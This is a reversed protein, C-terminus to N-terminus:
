AQEVSRACRFGTHGTSSDPTNSTRAAVRYRNCYSNHCLYSGGRVVRSTGEPPGLPNVRTLRNEPVHWTTSWRDSCWEWVNGSTNYLGYANPPYTKVPATGVHGDDGTNVHPFTGQWINCRHRGGPTLEDGWPYRARPLGGRAACEWEAETPLRRGAWHAYAAADNWSVHVVPHNQRSTIASGPGDPHRWDAGEVPLWWPAGPVQGDIVAHQDTVFLHFVYSWGHSEADTRYGTSKVFAAFKANTVCVPDILFPRLTVQRIPGEGDEPRGDLDDGGMLFTGGPIEVMGKGSDAASGRRPRASHRAPM